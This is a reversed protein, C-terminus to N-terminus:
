RRRMKFYIYIVGALLIIFFVYRIAMLARFVISVGGFFFSFVLLVFVIGIIVFVWSFGSKPKQGSGGASGSSSGDENYADNREIRRRGGATAVITKALIRPDGLEALVEEESRGSATEQAIYDEYYALNEELERESVKGKLSRKLSALFDQRSM